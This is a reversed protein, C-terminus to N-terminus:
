RVLIMSDDFVTLDIIRSLTGVIAASASGAHPCLPCRVLALRSSWVISCNAVVPRDPVETAPTARAAPRVGPATYAYKGDFCSNNSAATSVSTSPRM